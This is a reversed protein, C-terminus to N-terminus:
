WCVCSCCLSHNTIKDCVVCVGLVKVAKALHYFCHVRTEVHLMIITM